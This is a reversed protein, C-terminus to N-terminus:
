YPSEDAGEEAQPDEGPQQESRGLLEGIWVTEKPEEGGKRNPSKRM